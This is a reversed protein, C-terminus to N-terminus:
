AWRRGRNRPRTPSTRILAVSRTPNKSSAPALAHVVSRPCKSKSSSVPPPPPWVDVHLSLVCLPVSVSTSQPPPVHEGQSMPRSQAPLVSQALVRQLPPTQPQSPPPWAPKSACKMTPRCSSPHIDFT